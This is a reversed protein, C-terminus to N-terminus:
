SRSFPWMDRTVVAVCRMEISRRICSELCSQADKLWTQWDEVESACAAKLLKVMVEAKDKLRAPVKELEVKNLDLLSQPVAAKAHHIIDATNDCSEAFAVVGDLSTYLEGALEEGSLTACGHATSLTEFIYAGRSQDISSSYYWQQEDNFTCVYIDNVNREDDRKMFSEVTLGYRIQNEGRNISKKDCLILPQCAQQLPVWLNLLFLPSYSNSNSPSDHHFLYPAMGRMIQKLPTGHVNQDIHVAGASTHGNIASLSEMQRIKAKNPGATRMIFGEKDHVYVLRLWLGNALPFSSYMLKKRIEQVKEPSLSKTANVEDLLSVLGPVRNLDIQEFGEKCIGPRLEGSSLDNLKLPVTESHADVEEIPFECSLNGSSPNIKVSDQKLFGSSGM